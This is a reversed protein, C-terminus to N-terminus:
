VSTPPGLQTYIQIEYHLKELLGPTIDIEVYEFGVGQTIKPQSSGKNLDTVVICTIKSNFFGSLPYRVHIPEFFDKTIIEDYRLYGPHLTDLCETTDECQIHAVLCCVLGLIFVIKYM